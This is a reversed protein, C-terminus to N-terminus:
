SSCWKECVDKGELECYLSKDNVSNREVWWRIREVASALLTEFECVNVGRCGEV